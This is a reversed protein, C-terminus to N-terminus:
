REALARLLEVPVGIDAVTVKGTFARARGFGKKVGCFSVTEGARIVTEAGGGGAPMGTDCDLGSPIDVAVVRHGSKNVVGIVEAAVGEVARSLGTGFMADIVLDEPVAEVMWDRLEAHGATVTEMPLKMAEVIALQEAAAGRYEERGTLLLVTVGAGANHLHRAAVLGDGGNNGPGALIM